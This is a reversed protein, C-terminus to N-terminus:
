GVVFGMCVLLWAAVVIWVGVSFVFVDCLVVGSECCLLCLVLCCCM